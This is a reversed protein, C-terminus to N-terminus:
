EAVEFVALWSRDIDYDTVRLDQIFDVVVGDAKLYAYVLVQLATKNQGRNDDNRSMICMGLWDFVRYRPGVLDFYTQALWTKTAEFFEMTAMITKVDPLSLKNAYGQSVPEQKRGIELVTDWLDEASPIKVITEM